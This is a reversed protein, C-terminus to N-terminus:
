RGVSKVVGDGELAAYADAPKLGLWPDTSPTLFLEAYVRENLAAVDRTQAADVAFWQHIKSHLLYENRVTDESMSREFPTAIRFLTHEIGAKSMALQGAQQEDLKRFMLRKSASDLRAEELHLAALRSWNDDSTASELWKLDLAARPSLSRLMPAEVLCKGRAVVAAQAATPPLNTSHASAPAIAPVRNVVPQVANMRGALSSVNPRLSNNGDLAATGTNLVRVAGLSNLDRNWNEAIAALRLAHYERLFAPRDLAPKAAYEKAAAEARELAQRFAKPGYLGPLADIPRGDPDLVYHISNGTITRELKRGDGFDITIRPVPRVSEWHMVFHERLYRSLEANAYLATRFFRSNACSFEEDLQGLLRLSLIPKGASRAAARAKELDTFWYLRSTVGDRQRAVADIAKCLRACSGDAEPRELQIPYLAYQLDQIERAHVQFLAELGAPGRVRLQAIAAASATKDPSVAQRALRNLILNSYDGCAVAQSAFFMLATAVCALLISTFPSVTAHIRTKM